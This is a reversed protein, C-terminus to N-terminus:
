LLVFTASWCWSFQISLGSLVFTPVRVAHKTCVLRIPYLQAFAYPRVSEHTATTWILHAGVAAPKAFTAAATAPM